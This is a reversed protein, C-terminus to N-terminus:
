LLGSSVGELSPSKMVRVHVKGRGRGVSSVELSSSGVLLRGTLTLAHIYIIAIDDEHFKGIM